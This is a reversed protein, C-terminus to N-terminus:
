NLNFVNPATLTPFMYAQEVDFEYFSCLFFATGAAGAPTQINSFRFDVVPALGPGKGQIMYEVPQRMRYHKQEVITAFSESQTSDMPHHTTVSSPQGRLAGTVQLEAGDEWSHAVDQKVMMNVDIMRYAFENDLTVTVQLNQQDNIPKAPVVDGALRFYMIARPLYTVQRVSDPPKVFPVRVRKAGLATLVIAM